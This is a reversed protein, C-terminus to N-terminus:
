QSWVFSSIITCNEADPLVNGRTDPSIFNGSIRMPDGGAPAHASGHRYCFISWYDAMVQFRHLIPSLNSNIVLLFDCIFKKNTGFDTVKFSRSRRLIWTTHM